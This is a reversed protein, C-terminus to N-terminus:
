AATNIAGLHFQKWILSVPTVLVFFLFFLRSSISDKKVARALPLCIAIEGLKSKRIKKDKKIFSKTFYNAKRKKKQMHLLCYAHSPSPPPFLPHM